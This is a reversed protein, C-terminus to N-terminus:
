GHVFGFFNACTLPAKDVDLEVIVRGSPVGDVALDMFVLPKRLHAEGIKEDETETAEKLWALAQAPAVTHVLVM